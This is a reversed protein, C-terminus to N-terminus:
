VDPSQLGLLALFEPFDRVEVDPPEEGPWEIGARNMWVATLGAAHAGPVDHAASDGIYVAKEPSANGYELALEFIGPDPKWIGVSESILVFSFLAEIELLDIKPQQIATPGNTILGVDAVQKVTEIAQLSDDYLALGRFRDSTYRDRAHEVSEQETVGFDALVEAFHSTGERARAEAVQIAEALTEPDPLVPEFAYRLRISLSAAHDCLTDDLDFLVLEPRPELRIDTGRPIKGTEARNAM